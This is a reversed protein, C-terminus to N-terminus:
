KGICFEAFISDLVSETDIAGVVRGLSMAAARLEEAAIELQLPTSEYRDLAAICQSVHHRHRARNLLPATVDISSSNSRSGEEEENHTAGSHTNNGFKEKNEGISYSGKVVEKVLESLRGTLESLGHGTTCSIVLDINDQNRLQQDESFLDSKNMVRVIPKKTSSGWRSDTENSSPPILTDITFIGGPECIAVVIHASEAAARLRKVGEVEIPDISDRVGAGDM